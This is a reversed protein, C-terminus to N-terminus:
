RDSPTVISPGLRDIVERADFARVNSGPKPGRGVVIEAMAEYRNVTRYDWDRDRWFPDDFFPDWSRWGFRPRYFRWYPNWYGYPGGGYMGPTRYTESQKETDKSVLIFHDFGHQVTLEAARFLLYREVTERSTLSNGRFSVQFRNAELQQDSYGGASSATAPQYPTATMCGGLAVSGLLATALAITRPRKLNSIRM